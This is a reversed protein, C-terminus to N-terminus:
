PVVVSLAAPVCEFSMPLQGLLEGDAQVWVGAGSATAQRAQVYTVGPLGLHSGDMGARLHRIYQQRDTWEFLCLDLCDSDLSARPAIRLGGGYSVANVLVTFTAGYRQGDVEVLFSPPRWRVLLRAWAFWFANPGLLRKLRPSVARAVAADLGIGAMALFYRAGARGVSVRRTRGAAIMNAIGDLDVPLGLEQALVNATGGPWIALSTTGGVLPQLAENITGDGGHVVITQVGAALAERSLGTADGPAATARAKVRLGRRELAHVMTPVADHRGHRRGSRPKHILVASRTM